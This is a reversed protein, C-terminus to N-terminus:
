GGEKIDIETLPGTVKGALVDTGAYTPSKGAQKAAALSSAFQKNAGLSVYVQDFTGAALYALVETPVKFQTLLRGSNDVKAFILPIRKQPSKYLWIAYSSGQGSPELGTAEVIMAATKGEKGLVARGRADGGDLPKLVAGTVQEDGPQRQAVTDGTESGSDSGSDGGGIVGTALLLIVVVVVGLGGAIALVRREKPLGGGSPKKSKAVAPRPKERPAPAPAQKEEARPTPTPAELVSPVEGGEREVADLADKVRIRVEDVSLGMLAAVDEYGQERQALLRLLAKQDGSLGM